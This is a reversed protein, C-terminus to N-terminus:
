RLRAVIYGEFTTDSPLDARAGDADTKSTYWGILEVGTIGETPSWTQKLLLWVRIM